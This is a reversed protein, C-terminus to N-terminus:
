KLRAELRVACVLKAAFAQLHDFTVPEGPKKGAEAMLKTILEDPPAEGIKYAIVIERNKGPAIAVGARGEALARGLRTFEYRKPRAGVVAILGLQIARKLPRDPEAGDVSNFTDFRAPGGGIAHLNHVIVRWGSM